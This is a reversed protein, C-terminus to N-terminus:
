FGRAWFQWPTDAPTGAEVLIFMEGALLFPGCIRALKEVIRVELTNTGDFYINQPKDLDQEPFYDEVIINVGEAPSGIWIQGGEELSDWVEYGELAAIAQRLERVTPNQSTEWGEPRLAGFEKPWDSEAGAFLSLPALHQTASM